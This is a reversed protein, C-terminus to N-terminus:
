AGYAGLDLGSRRQYRAFSELSSAIPGAAGSPRLRMDVPYLPGEATPATVAGILRQSLRAYYASM